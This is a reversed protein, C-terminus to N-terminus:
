TAAAEIRNDDKQVRRKYRLACAKIWYAFPIKGLEELICFYELLLEDRISARARMLSWEIVGM